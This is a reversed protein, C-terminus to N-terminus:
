FFRETRNIHNRSKLITDFPGSYAGNMSTAEEVESPTLLTSNDPLFDGLDLPDFEIEGSKTNRKIHDLEAAEVRTVYVLMHNALKTLYMFDNTMEETLRVLGDSIKKAQSMLFVDVITYVFKARTTELLNFPVDEEMFRTLEAVNVRVSIVDTLLDQYELSDTAAVIQTKAVKDSVLKHREGEVLFTPETLLLAISSEPVAKISSVSMAM